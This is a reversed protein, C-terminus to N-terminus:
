SGVTATNWVPVDREDYIVVNGDNQVFLQADRHGGSGSSWLTEGLKGVLTLSGDRALQLQASDRNVTGSSWVPVDHGGRKYLVLNGDLQLILAFRGDCSTVSQDPKLGQGVAITGCGQPATVPALLAPRFFGPDVANAIVQYGSDNPHVHDGSDLAPLFKTPNAPDHLPTDQDVIGDCGSGAGRVFANVKQREAEKKLTWGDGDKGPTLTSCIFKVGKQHTRGILGKMAAILQVSTVAPDDAGIDNWPADSFIVWRVGPQSLVDRDFRHVVSQGSGFEEILSNGTIGQNLVGVGLKKSVLRAALDNTWRKNQNFSSRYGDTVSSGIAVVAGILGPGQVDLNTLFQYDGSEEAQITARGSVDGVAVYKSQNSFGHATIQHTATPVYFSVVVDALAPVAFAVGDSTLSAGPAITVSTKGAFTLVKDTAPKISSGGAGLAIHVDRVTLPVDGFLNSLQIRAATGAVSTHMIQRITKGAYNIPDAVQPAVAWTGVWPDTVGNSSAATAALLAVMGFGTALARRKRQSSLM